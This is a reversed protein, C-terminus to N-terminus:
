SDGPLTGPAVPRLMRRGDVVDVRFRTAAREFVPLPGGAQLGTLFDGQSRDVGGWQVVRGEAVFVLWQKGDDTNNAVDGESWAFGLAEEIGAESLYPSLVHLREWPEPFVVAFDVTEGVPVTAVQAAFRDRVDASQGGCAVLLAFLAM